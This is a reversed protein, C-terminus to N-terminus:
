WCAYFSWDAESRDKHTKINTCIALPNRQWIQYKRDRASVNFKEIDSSETDMLYFKIKQATFKMLSLQVNNVSSDILPKIILHMHNPMIVYAYLKILKKSVLFKLSNMIIEKLDDNYLIPIWKYVSSTFFYLKDKEM